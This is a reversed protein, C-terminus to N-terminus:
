QPSVDTYDPFGRLAKSCLSDCAKAFSGIASFIIVMYCHSQVIEDPSNNLLFKYCSIKHGGKNFM